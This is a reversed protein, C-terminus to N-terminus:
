LTTTMAFQQRKSYINVAILTYLYFTLETNLMFQANVYTGKKHLAALKKGLILKIANLNKLKKAKHPFSVARQASLREPELLTMNKDLSLVVFTEPDNQGQTHPDTCSQDTKQKCCSSSPLSQM